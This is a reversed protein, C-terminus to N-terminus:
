FALTLMVSGSYVGKNNALKIFTYCLNVWPGARYISSPM